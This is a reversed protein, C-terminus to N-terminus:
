LHFWSVAFARETSNIFIGLTQGDFTQKRRPRLSEGRARRRAATQVVPEPQRQQIILAGLAMRANLAPRGRKKPFFVMYKVEVEAWDVRGAAVIWEDRVDLKMGCSQNFDEFTMQEAKEAKYM